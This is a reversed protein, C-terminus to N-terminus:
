TTSSFSFLEIFFFRLSPERKPSIYGTTSSSFRRSLMASLCLLDSGPWDALPQRQLRTEGGFAVEGAVSAALPLVM